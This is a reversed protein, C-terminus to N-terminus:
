VNEGVVLNYEIVLHDLGELFENSESDVGVTPTLRHYKSQESGLGEM